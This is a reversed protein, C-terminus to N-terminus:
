TSPGGPSYMRLMILLPDHEKFKQISEDMPPM